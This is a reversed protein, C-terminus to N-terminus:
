FPGESDGLSLHWNGPRNLHRQHPSRDAKALFLPIRADRRFIREHLAAAYPGDSAVAEIRDAGLSRLHRITQELLAHISDRDNDVVVLEAISATLTSDPHVVVSFGALRGSEDLLQFRSAGLGPRDVYKWNLYKHDKYPAIGLTPASREALEDFREDFRGFEEVRAKSKLRLGNAWNTAGILGRLAASTPSQMPGPVSKGVKHSLGLVMVRRDTWMQQYKRAKQLAINIENTWVMACFGQSAKEAKRYLKMTLFFGQAQEKRLEPHVYLDHFYSALEQDGRLNFITPMRGLHAMVRDGQVGVFYTPNGDSVPNHFAVWEVISARREAGLRGLGPRSECLEVFSPMDSPRLERIETKM